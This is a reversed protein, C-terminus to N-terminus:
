ISPERNKITHALYGSKISIAHALYSSKFNSPTHTIGSAQSTKTIKQKSKPLQTAATANKKAPSRLLVSDNPCQAKIKLKRAIPRKSPTIKLIHQLFNFFNQSTSVAQSLQDQMYAHAKSLICLYM